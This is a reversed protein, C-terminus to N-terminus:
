PKGESRILWQDGQATASLGQAALAESLADQDPIPPGSLRVENSVYDVTGLAYSAPVVQGFAALVRELDAGSLTGSARQLAALEREMQVPADVVAVVKPFTDTLMLRIKQRQAQLGAQEHLAWANLGVLNALVLASLAWRAARWQPAGVFNKLAQAVQGWAQRRAANALDFQALDWDSQAAQLLRQGRQQLQVPRKFCQEAQAAVAPEALVPRQAGVPGLLGLAAPTLACNLVGGSSGDAAGVWATLEAADGEGAVQIAQQLAQPTCEPVIRSVVHGTRALAELGAKLWARDCVAVWVPAGAEPQPQLAFHLQAPEDLLHDELLGELIARLRTNSREGLMSRTVSGQPLQVRHWSLRQAPVVAVVEAQRDAPAALNGLAVTTLSRADAGSLYNLLAAPDATGSPLTIILSTM